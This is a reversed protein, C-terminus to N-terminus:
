PIIGENTKERETQGVMNLPVLFEDLGEVPNMNEKVRVENRNMWGGAIGKAYALFRKLTDGRLLGELLFEFFYEDDDYLLNCNLGEEWLRCWPLMTDVVFEIAQHEINTYTANLLHQIKHPPMRFFRCIDVISLHKSELMQADEATMGIVVADMGSELVATKHANGAGGYNADWSGGLRKVQDDQLTGPHKLVVRKTGGTTFVRDSFEDQAIAHGIHNRAASLISLGLPGDMLFGPLHFMQDQHILRESHDRWDRYIYRLSNDELIEVKVRDPHLPVLQDVAGRRGPVIESYANGRFHIHGQEMALWERKTQGRNPKKRFLDYRPHDVAREKGGNDLRRYLILPLTCLTQIIVNHCGFLASVRMANEPTVKTGSPTTGGVGTYWFDGWPGRGDIKMYGLKKFISSIVKM